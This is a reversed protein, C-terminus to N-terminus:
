GALLPMDKLRSVLGILKQKQEGARSLGPVVTGHVYRQVAKLLDALQGIM